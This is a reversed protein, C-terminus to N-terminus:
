HGCRRRGTRAHQHVRVTIYLSGINHMLGPVLAEDSEAAPDRPRARLCDISWLEKRWLEQLQPRLIAVSEGANMQQLAFSVASCRVLQHGLRKV